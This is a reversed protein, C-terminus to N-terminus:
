VRPNIMDHIYTHIYTLLTNTYVRCYSSNEVDIAQKQNNLDPHGENYPYPHSPDRKGRSNIKTSMGDWLETIKACQSLYLLAAHETRSQRRGQTALYLTM